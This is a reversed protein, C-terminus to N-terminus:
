DSPKDPPSTYLSPPFPVASEDINRQYGPGIALPRDPLVSQDVNSSYDKEIRLLEDGAASKLLVVVHYPRDKEIGQLPPTQMEIRGGGRAPRSVVIPDGGAPNEFTAEITSGPPPDRRPLLIIGYTAVANRYNFIFGGGALELYKSQDVCAASAILITPVVAFVPFRPM